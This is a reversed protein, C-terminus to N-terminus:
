TQQSRFARYLANQAHLPGVDLQYAELAAACGPAVIFRLVRSGRQKMQGCLSTSGFVSLAVSVIASSAM